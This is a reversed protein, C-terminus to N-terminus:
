NKPAEGAAPTPQDGGAAKEGPLTGFTLVKAPTTKLKPKLHEPITARQRVPLTPRQKFQASLYIPEGGRGVGEYLKTVHFTEGTEDVVKYTDPAVEEGIQKIREFDRLTREINGKKRQERPSLNTFSAQTPTGTAIAIDPLAPEEGRTLLVFAGVAATILLLLGLASLTPNKM